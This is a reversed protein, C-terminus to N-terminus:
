VCRSRNAMHSPCRRPRADVPGAAARAVRAARARAPTARPPSTTPICGVAAAGRAPAVARLPARAVAPAVADAAVALASSPHAVLGWAVRHLGPAALLQSLSFEISLHDTSTNIIRHPQLLHSSSPLNSLPPPVAHATTPRDAPRKHTKTRDAPRTSQRRCKVVRRCAPISSLSLSPQDNTQTANGRPTLLPEPLPAAGLSLPMMRVQLCRRKDTLPSCAGRHHLMWKRCRKRQSDWFQPQTRMSPHLQPPNWLPLQMRRPPPTLRTPDRRASGGPLGSRSLRSRPRRLDAAACQIYIARDARAIGEPPPSTPAPPFPPRSRPRVGSTHAVAVRRDKLQSAPQQQAAAGAEPSCPACRWPARCPGPQESRGAAREGRAPCVCGAQMQLLLLPPSLVGEGQPPCPACSAPLGLPRM